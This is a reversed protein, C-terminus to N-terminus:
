QVSLPQLGAHLVNGTNPVPGARSIKRCTMLNVVCRFYINILVTLYLAEPLM